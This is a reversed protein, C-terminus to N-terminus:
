SQKWLRLAFLWVVAPVLLLAGTFGAVVFPSLGQDVVTGAAASMASMTVVSFGFETSFIRGRFRDVTTLQLLTTSFVWTISGGAHALIVCASAAWLNTAQSLLGYGLAALVFGPVIYNRLREQRRGAFYSAALPGILAGVGRSAMLVSMGLTGAQDATMGEGQWAFERRGLIPLVVWNTGMLGLGAKVFMTAALRKDARLYAIGERIPSFDFLQRARFPALHELHPEAFRMRRIILASLVFTLANMAFVTERGFFAAAFGGVAAGVAFNFSWTTSALANAAIVEDPEVLSPIVANRAPEFLAWLLTEILLLLYLFWVMEPGRVLLMCAVVGARAWDAFLMVKRRSMHDNIVGATPSAFFQPLVQLVFAFGVSKASGTYELLLSYVAVTYFWDGIESVIQAMWLLRFERNGTVLQRYDQWSVPRSDSM